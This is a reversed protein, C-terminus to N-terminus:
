AEVKYVAVFLRFVRRSHEFEEATAGSVVSNNIELWGLEMEASEVKNWWSARRFEALIRNVPSHGEPAYGPRPDYKAHGRTKIRQDESLRAGDFHAPDSVWVYPQPDFSAESRSSMIM